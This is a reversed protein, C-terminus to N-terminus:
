VSKTAKRRPRLRSRKSDNTTADGLLCYINRVAQTAFSSQGPAKAILQKRVHLLGRAVLEATGKARTAPAISYRAPFLETSWWVERGDEGEEALVALLMALAPASMQQIHGKTWLTAPVKFYLHTPKKSAAAKSYATSPLSYESGSGDERLLKINSSEGRVRTVQVLKLRELTRLAETVRRAGKDNPDPLSLLTAWRRASIDTDYPAASCRWLLALYLKLPVAGGRGRASVLQALPAPASPDVSAAFLKRVPPHLRRKSSAALDKALAMSAQLARAASVDEATTSTVSGLRPHDTM